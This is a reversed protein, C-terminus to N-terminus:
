ENSLLCWPIEATEGHTILQQSLQIQGEAHLSGFVLAFPPPPAPFPLTSDNDVKFSVWAMGKKRGEIRVSISYDLDRRSVLSLRASHMTVEENGNTDAEGVGSSANEKWVYRYVHFDAVSLIVASNYTSKLDKVFHPSSRLSTLPHFSLPKEPSVHFLGVDWAKSARFQLEVLKGSWETFVLQSEQTANWAKLGPTMTDTDTEQPQPTFGSQRLLLESSLVANTCYSGNAKKVSLFDSSLSYYKTTCLPHFCFKLQSCEKFRQRWSKSSSSPLQQEREYSSDDFKKRFLHKWVMDDVAAAHWDRNVRFCEALTPAELYGFVRVLLEQPFESWAM